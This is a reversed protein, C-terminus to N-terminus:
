ADKDFLDLLLQADNDVLELLLHASCNFLKDKRLRQLKSDQNSKNSKDNSKNSKNDADLEKRWVVKLTNMMDLDADFHGPHLGEKSFLAHLKPALFIGKNALQKLTLAKSKTRASACALLSPWTCGFRSKAASCCCLFLM